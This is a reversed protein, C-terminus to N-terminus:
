RGPAGHGTYGTLEAYGRGTVPADAHRGRITVSGEWYTVGVIGRTRLEQDAVTPALALELREAPVMIRWGAPYRGGSARSTWTGTSEITFDALTLHRSRGDKEVWTGSSYPEFGGGKMRLRYLMLERGDDLQLGFWDWGDHVDDFPTTMFEHDMWSAGRVDLWHGDLRVRGRTPMRTLSVYHSSRTLDAQKRSIGHAGHAVPPKGPQLALDIAFAGADAALEHQTGASDLGARWDDIWVRYRVSDAGGRGLVPRVLTDAYFFRRGNEDTLAAHAFLLDRLAWASARPSRSVGVRFFTLEYGFSRGGGDLHGTYYWWETQFDPHAAHDRPFTFTWPTSADRFEPAEAVAPAALLLAAVVLARAKM